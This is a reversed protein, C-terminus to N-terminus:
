GGRKVEVARRRGRLGATVPIEVRRGVCLREVTSTIARYTLAVAEWDPGECCGELQGGLASLDSLGVRGANARMVQAIKSISGVDRREICERLQDLRAACFWLYRGAVSRVEGCATAIEQQM